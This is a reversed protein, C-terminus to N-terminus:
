AIHAVIVPASTPHLSGGAREQTVMVVSVGALNGPVDVDAAGAATVGFLAKTPTPPANGRRLWVEYIRGSPPQPLHVVVLEAHDGSVHVSAAGVSAHFVDTASQSSLAIVAAVAVVAVAALGGAMATRPRTRTRARQRSRGSATQQRGAADARVESLVRRRLGRPISHQQASMPLADAVQQFAMVEDRCVVCTDMHRRFGDAEDPELAGLVYAAVEGGCDSSMARSM